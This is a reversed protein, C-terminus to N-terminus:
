TNRIIFLEKRYSFPVLDQLTPLRELFPVIKLHQFPPPATVGVDLSVLVGFPYADCKHQHM